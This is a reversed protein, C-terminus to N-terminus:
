PGGHFHWPADCPAAPNSLNAARFAHWRGILHFYCEDLFTEPGRDTFSIGQVPSRGVAIFDVFHGEATSIPCVKYPAKLPGISGSSIFSCPQLPVTTRLDGHNLKFLVAKATRTAASSSGLGNSSVPSGASCSSLLIAM